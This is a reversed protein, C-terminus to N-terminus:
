SVMGPTESRDAGQARDLSPALLPKEGDLARRQEGLRDVRADRDFFEVRRLAGVIGSRKQAFQLFRTCRCERVRLAAM